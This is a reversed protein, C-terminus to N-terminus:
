HLSYATRQGAGEMRLSQETSNEEMITTFGVQTQQPRQGSVPTLVLHSLSVTTTTPSCVPIFIRNAMGSVSKQEREIALHLNWFVALLCCFLFIGNWPLRIFASSTEGSFLNKLNCNKCVDCPFLSFYVPYLFICSHRLRNLAQLSPSTWVQAACPSLLIATVTAM